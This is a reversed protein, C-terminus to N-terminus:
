TLILTIRHHPEGHTSIVYCIIVFYDCFKALFLSGVDLQFAPSISEFIADYYTLKQPVSSANALPAKFKSPKNKMMAENHIM